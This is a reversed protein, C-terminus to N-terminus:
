QAKPLARLRYLLEAYKLQAFFHEPALRRAEELADLSRYADYNMAHAIGLCTHLDANQPDRECARELEGIYDALQAPSVEHPDRWPVPVRPATITQLAAAM